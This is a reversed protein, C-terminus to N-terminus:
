ALCHLSAYDREEEGENGAIFAGTPLTINLTCKFHCNLQNEKLTIKRKYKKRRGSNYVKVQDEMKLKRKM